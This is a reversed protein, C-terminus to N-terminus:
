TSSTVGGQAAGGHSWAIGVPCSGAAKRPDRFCNPDGKQTSGCDCRCVSSCCAALPRGHDRTSDRYRRSTIFFGTQPAYGSHVRNEPKGCRGSLSGISLSRPYRSGESQATQRHRCTLRSTPVDGGVHAALMNYVRRTDFSPGAFSAFRRTAYPVRHGEFNSTFVGKYEVTM